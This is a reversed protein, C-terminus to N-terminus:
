TQVKIVGSPIAGALFARARVVQAASGFAGSYLKATSGSKVAPPLPSSFDTTFWIAAGATPCTITVQGGAVAAAPQMVFAPGDTPAELCSFQVLHSKIGDGLERKLNLPSICPTEPKLNAILGPLQFQKVVDRIRRAIRRSSKGDGNRKNLEVSELTQFSPYLTMPGFRINPQLDDAVMPMVIVARGVKGGRSTQVAQLRAAMSAVNEEDFALVTVTAFFDDGLLCAQLEGPLLEIIDLPDSM